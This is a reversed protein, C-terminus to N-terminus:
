LDRKIGEKKNYKENFVKYLVHALDDYDEMLKICMQEKEKLTSVELTDFIIELNPDKSIEKNVNIKAKEYIEDKYKEINQIKRLKILNEILKKLSKKFDNNKIKFLNSRETIDICGLNIRYNLEYIVTLMTDIEPNLKEKIYIEEDNKNKNNSLITENYINEFEDSILYTLNEDVQNDYKSMAFLISCLFEKNLDCKGDPEIKINGGDIKGFYFGAKTLNSQLKIKKDKTIKVNYNYKIDINPYNNQRFNENFLLNNMQRFAIINIKSNDVFNFELFDIEHLINQNGIISYESSSPQIGQVESLKAGKIFVGGELLNWNKARSPRYLEFCGKFDCEELRGGNFYLERTDIYLTTDEYPIQIEAYFNKLDIDIVNNGLYNIEHGKFVLRAKREGENNSCFAYIDKISFIKALDYRRKNQCSKKFSIIGEYIGTVSTNKKFKEFNPNNKILNDSNKDSINELENKTKSNDTILDNELNDRELLDNEILWQKVETQLNTLENLNKDQSLRKIKESLQIVAATKESGLNDILFNQLINNYDSLVTVMKSIKNKSEKEKQAKKDLIYQNFGGVTQMFALLESYNKATQESWPSSISKNFKLFLKALEIGNISKNGKSFEKIDAIMSQSENELKELDLFENQALQNESDEEKFKKKLVKKEAILTEQEQMLNQLKEIQKIENKAINNKNVENSKNSSQTNITAFYKEKDEVILKLAILYENMFELFKEKNNGRPSCFSSSLYQKIPGSTSGKTIDVSSYGSLFSKFDSKSINKIQNSYFSAQPLGGWVKECYKIIIFLKGAAYSDFEKFKNRKLQNNDFIDFYLTLPNIKHKNSDEFFLLGQPKKNLFNANAVEFNLFIFIILFLYRM